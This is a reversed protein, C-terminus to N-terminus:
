PAGPRFCIPESTSSITSPMPTPILHAPYTGLDGLPIEFDASALGSLNAIALESM